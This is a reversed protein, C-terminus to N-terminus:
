QLTCRRHSKTSRRASTCERKPQPGFLLLSIFRLTRHTRGKRATQYYLSDITLILFALLSSCLQLFALFHGCCLQFTVCKPIRRRSEESRIRCCDGSHRRNSFFSCERDFCLSAARATLRNGARPHPSTKMSSSLYPSAALSLIFTQGVSLAALWVGRSATELGWNFYFDSALPL